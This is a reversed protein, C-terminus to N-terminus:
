RPRGFGNSRGNLGNTRSSHASSGAGFYPHNCSRKASIRSAPDYKLLQELLDLGHADLNTTLPKSPDRRWKPFSSKYDPFSTVGPWEEEDPTGLIRCRTLVLAYICACRRM